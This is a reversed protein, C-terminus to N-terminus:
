AIVRCKLAVPMGGRDQNARANVARIAEGHVYEMAIYYTGQVEGLDYIQAINPHNLHAAIRAEDFFMQIFEDEEALHPLIRKVVLLKEFGSPGKQRALYVEGMGGTALKRLLQYRGFTELVPMPAGRM